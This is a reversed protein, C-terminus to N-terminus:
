FGERVALSLFRGQVHAEQGGDHEPLLCKEARVRFAGVIRLAKECFLYMESAAVPTDTKEM